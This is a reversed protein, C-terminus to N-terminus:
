RPIGGRIQTFPSSTRRKTVGVVRRGAGKRMRGSGALIRSKTTPTTRQVGIKSPLGHNVCLFYFVKATQIVNRPNHCWYCYAVYAAAAFKKM